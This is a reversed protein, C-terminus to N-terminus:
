SLLFETISENVVQITHVIYMYMYEGTLFNATLTLGSCLLTTDCLRAGRAKKGNGLSARRM